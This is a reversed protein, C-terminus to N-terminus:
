DEGRTDTPKRGVQSFFAALSYYDDQSWREFPHHHCKACQLRAGLFLQATAEALDASNSNIKFYSAPGSSYISGNATILERVFQDFPKNTRFSEKIWNHM